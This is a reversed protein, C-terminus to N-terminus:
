SYFNKGKSFELKAEQVCKMYPASLVKYTVHFLCVMLLLPHLSKHEM